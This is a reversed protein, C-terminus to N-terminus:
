MGIAQQEQDRIWAEITEKSFFIRSRIKFHPIENKRVMRYITERTVGLYDAMQKPTLRQTSM